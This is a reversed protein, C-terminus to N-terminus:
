PRRRYSRVLNPLEDLHDILEDPASELLREFPQIGGRVGVTVAGAARGSEVDQPGDGVMLLSQPSVNLAAAIHRLPLPHPKKEPLDDGAVVIRFFRALMLESLVAETTRRPKNTCLALPLEDVLTELMDVAGPLPRTYDAAHETYFDLFRVLLADLEPASPELRSARAVLSRAGDGVYSSIEAESLPQRGSGVLVHNTAVAIDRRSDVLTGDLDFVVAEVSRTSEVAM